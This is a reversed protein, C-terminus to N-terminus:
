KLAEWIDESVKKRKREGMVPRYKIVEGEKYRELYGQRVLIRAYIPVMDKEEPDALEQAEELTMEGHKVFWLYVERVPDSLDIAGLIGASEEAKKETQESEPQEKIGETTKRAIELMDDLLDLGGPPKKKEVM